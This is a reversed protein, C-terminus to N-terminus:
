SKASAITQSANVADASAGSGQLVGINMEGKNNVVTNNNQIVQQRQRLETTDIRCEDLFQMIAELLKQEAIKLYMVRDLKQFFLHYDGDSAEERLSTDTGYDFSPNNRAIRALREQQRQYTSNSLFRGLLGFCLKIPSDFSRKVLEWVKGAAPIIEREDVWYYEPKLPYLLLYDVEAFLNKGSQVFRLFATFIV